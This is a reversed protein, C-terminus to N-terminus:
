SVERLILPCKHIVGLEHLEDLRARVQDLESEIAAMRAGLVLALPSTKMASLQSHLFNARELELAYFFPM